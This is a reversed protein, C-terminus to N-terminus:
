RLVVSRPHDADTHIIKYEDIQEVRVGGELADGSTKPCEIEVERQNGCLHSAIVCTISAPREDAKAKGEVRMAIQKAPRKNERGTAKARM